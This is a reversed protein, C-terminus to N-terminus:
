PEFLIHAKGEIVFLGNQNICKTDLIFIRNKIIEEITVEATIIDGHFVPAKFDM